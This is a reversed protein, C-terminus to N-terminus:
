SRRPVAAQGRGQSGAGDRGGGGTPTITGQGLVAVPSAIPVAATAAALHLLTRRPLTM